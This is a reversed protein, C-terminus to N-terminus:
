CRARSSWTSSANRMRGSKSRSTIRALWLRVWRGGTDQGPQLRHERGRTRIPHQHLAIGRSREATCQGGEILDSPPGHPLRAACRRSRKAREPPVSGRAPWASLREANREWGPSRPFRKRSPIGAADMRTVPLVPMSATRAHTVTQLAALRLSAGQGGQGGPLFADDDGCVAALAEACAHFM